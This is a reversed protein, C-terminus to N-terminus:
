SRPGLSSADTDAVTGDLSGFGQAFYHTSQYDNAPGLEGKDVDSIADNINKRGLLMSPVTMM